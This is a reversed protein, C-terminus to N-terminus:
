YKNVNQGLIKNRIGGASRASFFRQEYAVQRSMATVSCFLPASASAGVGM